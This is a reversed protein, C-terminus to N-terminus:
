GYQERCDVLSRRPLSEADPYKAREPTVALAIARADSRLRRAETRNAKSQYASVDATPPFARGIRQWGVARAENGAAIDLLSDINQPRAKNGQKCNGLGAQQQQDVIDTLRNSNYLALGAIVILLLLMVRETDFWGRAQRVM